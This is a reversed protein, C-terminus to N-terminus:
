SKSNTPSFPSITGILLSSIRMSFIFELPVIIGLIAPLIAFIKGSFTIQNFLNYIFFICQKFHMNKIKFM